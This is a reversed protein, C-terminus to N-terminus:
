KLEAIMEIEVAANLPLSPVGVASRAHKGDDGFIKLLLESAGNAVAPQKYFDTPSAIFVTLKVIRKIKDLDGTMGKIVSLCNLLSIEAAKKGDEESIDKGVQGSYKLEGNVLPLQGATFVLNGSQVCPVYAALPKPAEALEYGLEKIKQEILM